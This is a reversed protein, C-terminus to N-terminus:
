DTLICGTSSDYFRVAIRNGDLAGGHYAAVAKQAADANRFMIEAVSDKVRCLDIRGAVSFASKVNRWHLNPPMNTVLVTKKGGRRVDPAYKNLDSGDSLKLEIRHGNVTGNNYTEVAKQASEATAFTLQTMGQCLECAEVVLCLEVVGAVSFASKLDQFDLDSPVNCVIVTRKAPDNM